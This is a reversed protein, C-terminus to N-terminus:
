EGAGLWWLLVFVPSSIMRGRLLAPLLDGLGRGVGGCAPLQAAKAEAFFFRLVVWPPM